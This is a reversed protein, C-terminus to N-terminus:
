KHLIYYKNVQECPDKHKDCHKGMTHRWIKPFSPEGSFYDGIWTICETNGVTVAWYVNLVYLSIITKKFFLSVSAASPCLLKCHCGIIQKWQVNVFYLLFNVINILTNIEAVLMPKRKSQAEPITAKAFATVCYWACLVVANGNTLAM